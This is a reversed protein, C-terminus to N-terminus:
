RLSGVSGRRANLYEQLMHAAALDDVPGRRRSSGRGMRTTFREDWEVFEVGPLAEELKAVTERVRRAQFGIEGRLNKPIGVVIESVQEEEVLGQLRPVLEEPRLIDYPRAITGSPDSIAVGTRVDGVDLAVCRGAASV